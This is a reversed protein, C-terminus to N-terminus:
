WWYSIFLVGPVLTIVVQFIRWSDQIAYAFGAILLFGISFFMHVITGAFLRKGPGVMEMALKKKLRFVVLLYIFPVFNVEAYNLM